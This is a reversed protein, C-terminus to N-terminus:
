HLTQDIHKSVQAWEKDDVIINFMLLEEAEQYAMEDVTVQEIGLHHAILKELEAKPLTWTLNL